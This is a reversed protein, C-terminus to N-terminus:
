HSHCTGQLIRCQLHPERDEEGQALMIDERWQKRLMGEAFLRM